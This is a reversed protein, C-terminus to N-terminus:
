RALWLREYADWEAPETTYDAFLAVGALAPSLPRSGLTNRVAVLALPLNEARPNHAPVGRGYTPLGLLVRCHPNAAVVAVPVRRCEQGLLWAYWRPWHMGTDYCMVAIQDCERAVEGFYGESWGWGWRHWPLWPAAAVGLLKRPALAARTERLLELLGPDGDRCTEYDWQVGDFGCTQTLWLAEGVMNSRMAADDLDVLGGARVNGAYVWALVKVKPALRHLTRVLRRAPDPYRYVLKGERNVLRVHFYAYRIELVRLDHALRHLDAGSRQGFYWTYRLWLANEGYNPSPVDPSVCLPYLWYDALAAVFLLALLIPGRRLRLGRRHVTGERQM